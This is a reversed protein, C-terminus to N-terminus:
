RRTTVGDLQSREILLMYARLIGIGVLRSLCAILAVWFIAFPNTESGLFGIFCSFLGVLGLVLAALLLPLALFDSWRAGSSRMIDSFKAILVIPHLAFSLLILAVGAAAGNRFGVGAIWGGLAGCAVGVWLSTVARITQCRHLLQNIESLSVPFVQCRAAFRGGLYLKEFVFHYGPLLPAVYFLTVAAVVLSINSPIEWSFFRLASAAALSASAMKLTSMTSKRWRFGWPWIFRAILRQRENLTRWFFKEAIGSPEPYPVWNESALTERSQGVPTVAAPIAKNPEDGDESPFYVEADGKDAEEEERLIRRELAKSIPRQLFVGLALVGSGLLFRTLSGFPSQTLQYFWGGPVLWSVLTMLDTAMATVRPIKEELLLLIGALLAIMGLWGPIRTSRFTLAGLLPLTALCSCLALSGPVYSWAEPLPILGWVVMFVIIAGADGANWLSALNWSRLRTAWIRETAVPLLLFPYQFGPLLSGNTMAIWRTALMFLGWTGACAATTPDSTVVAVWGIIMAIGIRLMVWFLGVWRWSLSIYIGRAAGRERALRDLTRVTSRQSFM